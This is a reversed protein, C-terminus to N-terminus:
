IICATNMIKQIKKLDTECCAKRNKITKLLDKVM